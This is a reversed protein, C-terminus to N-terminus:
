YRFIETGSGAVKVQLNVANVEAFDGFGLGIAAEPRAADPGPLTLKKADWLRVRPNMSRSALKSGDDSFSMLCSGPIFRIVLNM